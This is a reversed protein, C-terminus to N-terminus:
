EEQLLDEYRITGGDPAPEARSAQVIAHATDIRPRSQGSIIYSLTAPIVGCRRSFAAVTEGRAELYKEM